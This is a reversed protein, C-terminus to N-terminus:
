NPSELANSLKYDLFCQSLQWEPKQSDWINTQFLDLIRKKILENKSFFDEVKQTEIDPEQKEFGADEIIKNYYSIPYFVKNVSKIEYSMNKLEEETFILHVFAKNIKNYLHGGHRGCWPHCRLYIKGDKALLSKADKLLQVPDSCHDLVDYILIIDYPGQSKVIELDTSFLFGEKEEWNKFILVDYGVSIKTDQTSAYKVMHGEGCGFDLFKKDKLSDDILIDVISEARDSKDEESNEDCIQFDLVAEPWEDSNLLNKLKELESPEFNLEKKIEDVLISIQEKECNLIKEVLDLIIEKNM